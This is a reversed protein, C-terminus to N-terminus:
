KAKDWLQQWTNLYLAALKPCNGLVLVNEANKCEASKSYNFSGTQVTHDDIIMFKNHMKHINSLRVTVNNSELYKRQSHQDNSEKKDLIVSVEVGREKAAVLSKAIEAATFAYMAVLIKHQAADITTIVLDTAGGKPSFAVTYTPANNTNCFRKTQTAISVNSYFISSAICCYIGFRKLLNGQM